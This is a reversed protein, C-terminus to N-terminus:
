ELLALAKIAQGKATLASAARITLRDADAHDESMLSLATRYHRWAEEPGGVSMASDGAHVSAELAVARDGAASAHRAIDAWTGLSPDSGLAAAYREHARVREGPLLDDYVTEALLAHRFAYGGSETPVLVHHEVADRLGQDLEADPLGAVAMLLPHSVHRGHASAMRVVHQGAAGLQDFRVLLLRSLDEAVGPQGLSSAAM